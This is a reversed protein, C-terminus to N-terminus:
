PLRPLQCRGEGAGSQVTTADVQQEAAVRNIAQDLQADDIKLGTERAFQMQVRDMVMRELLQRELVDQPPLSIKQKELQKLAIALRQRM